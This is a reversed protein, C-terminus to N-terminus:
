FESTYINNIIMNKKLNNYKIKYKNTIYVTDINSTLNIPTNSFLIKKSLIGLNFNYNNFILKIKINIKNEYMVLNKNLKAYNVFELYCDDNEIKIKSLLYLLIGIKLYDKNNLKIQNFYILQIHKNLFISWNIFDKKNKLYNFLSIPNLIIKFIKSHILNNQYRNIQILDTKIIEKTYYYKTKFNNWNIISLINNFRYFNIITDIYINDNSFIHKNSQLSLIINIYFLEPVFKFEKKFEIFLNNKYYYILKIIYIYIYKITNNLNIFIENIISNNIYIDDLFKYSYYLVKLFDLSCTQKMNNYIYKVNKILTIITNIDFTPKKKLMKLFLSCSIITSTFLNDSLINKYKDEINNFVLKLKRIILIKDYEEDILIYKLINNYEYIQKSYYIQVIKSFNNLNIFERFLNDKTNSKSTASNYYSFDNLSYKTLTISNSFFNKKLTIKNDKLDIIKIKNGKYFYYEDIKLKKIKKNILLNYHEEFRREFGLFIINVNKFNVLISNQKKSLIFLKNFYYAYLILNNIFIIKRFFINLFNNVNVYTNNDNLLENKLNTSILKYNQVFEKKHIYQLNFKDILIKNLNLLFDDYLNDSLLFFMMFYENYVYNNLIKLKFPFLINIKNIINYKNILYVKTNILYDKEFNIIIETKIKKLTFNYKIYRNNHIIPLKIIM